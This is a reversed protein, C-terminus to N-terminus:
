KSIIELNFFLEQYVHILCFIISEYWRSLPLKQVQKGM